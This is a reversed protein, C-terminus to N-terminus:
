PAVLTAAKFTLAAVSLETLRLGAETSPPLEEVPVTFSLPGAGAAPAVTLRELLVIETACCGALTVIAGLAVVAVNVIVV